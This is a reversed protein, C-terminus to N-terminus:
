TKSLLRTPRIMASCTATLFTRVGYLVTSGLLFADRSPLHLLFYVLRLSQMDSDPSPHFPPTLSWRRKRTVPAALCVGRPALDLLMAPWRGPLRSTQLLAPLGSSATPLPLGLYIIIETSSTAVSRRSLIRSVPRCTTAKKDTRVPLYIQSVPRCTTAKKDTRVPLYIRSISRCTAAKKATRVPLYIRSVSRCTTAKKHQFPDGM